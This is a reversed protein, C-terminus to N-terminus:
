IYTLLHCLCGTVIIKFSLFGMKEAMIHVLKAKIEIEINKHYLCYSIRAESIFYLIQVLLPKQWSNTFSNSFKLVIECTSM